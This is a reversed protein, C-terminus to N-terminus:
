SEKVMRALAVLDAVNFREVEVGNSFREIVLVIEHAGREILFPEIMDGCANDLSSGFVHGRVEQEDPEHMDPRCGRTIHQLRALIGKQRDDM